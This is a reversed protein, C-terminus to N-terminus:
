HPGARWRRRIALTWVGVFQAVEQDLYDDAGDPAIFSLPVLGQALGLLKRDGEMSLRVLCHMWCYHGWTLRDGVRLHHSLWQQAEKVKVSDPYFPSTIAQWTFWITLLLDRM